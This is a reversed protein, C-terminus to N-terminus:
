CEDDVGSGVNPGLFASPTSGGQRRSQTVRRRRGEDLTRAGVMESMGVGELRAEAGPDLREARPASTWGTACGADFGRLRPHIEGIFVWM